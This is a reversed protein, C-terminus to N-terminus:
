ALHRGKDRHLGAAISWAATSEMYGMGEHLLTVHLIHGRTRITGQLISWASRTGMDEHHGAAIGWACCMGRCGAAMGMQIATPHRQM